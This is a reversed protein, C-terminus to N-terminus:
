KKEKEKLGILKTKKQRYSGLYPLWCLGFCTRVTRFGVAALVVVRSIWELGILDNEQLTTYTTINSVSCVAAYEAFAYSTLTLKNISRNVTPQFALLIGFYM